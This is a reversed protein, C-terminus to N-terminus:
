IRGRGKNVTQEQHAPVFLVTCGRDGGYHRHSNRIAPRDGARDYGCGVGTGSRGPRLRSVFGQPGAGGAAAGSPACDSVAVCSAALAVAAALLRRREKEVAAGLGCAIDDGLHLVDLVRAKSLVYTILLLLWPLLALFLKWNSGWISGAQWAAVFDFQTDDLKVVLVTTLASIGAQVALGTLIFRIPAIGTQRKYALAYILIATIGAGILALFPLTFVSLLSQSRFFLVFLIVTLGAGVLISIVIRPLRFGFLILDEMDSGGGFLTRLTDLPSLKAYGTNMSVLFSLLLLASFVFVIGNNRIAIKQKYAQNKEQQANM